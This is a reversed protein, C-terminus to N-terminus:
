GFHDKAQVEPRGDDLFLPHCCIYAPFIERVASQVQSFLSSTDSGLKACAAEYCPQSFHVEPKSTEAAGGQDWTM